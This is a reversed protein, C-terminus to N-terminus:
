SQPMTIYPNQPYGFDDFDDNENNCSLRYMSKWSKVPHLVRSWSNAPGQLDDLNVYPIGVIFPTYKKCM